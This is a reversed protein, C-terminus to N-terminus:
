LVLEPPKGHVFQGLDEGDGGDLAEVGTSCLLDDPKKTRVLVGRDSSVTLSVRAQPVRDRVMEELAGFYGRMGGILLREGPVPVGCIMRYAVKVGRSLDSLPDDYSWVEGLEGLRRDRFSRVEQEALGRDWCVIM